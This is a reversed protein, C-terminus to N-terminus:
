RMKTSQPAEPSAPNQAFLGTNQLLEDFMRRLKINERIVVQLRRKLQINEKEMELYREYWDIDIM